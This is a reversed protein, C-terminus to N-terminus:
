GEGLVGSLNGNLAKSPQFSYSCDETYNINLYRCGSHSSFLINFKLTEDFLEWQCPIYLSATCLRSKM